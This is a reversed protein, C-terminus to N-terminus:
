KIVLVNYGTLRPLEIRLYGHEIKSKVKEGTSIDTVNASKRDTLIALNKEMVAIIQRVPRTKDFSCNVLHVVKHGSTTNNINIVVTDPLNTIIPTSGNTFWEMCKKFFRDYADFGKEYYLRFFESAIYVVRGKGYEHAVIAPMSTQKQLHDCYYRCFELFEAIYYDSEIALCEMSVPFVDGAAFDKIIAQTEAFRCYRSAYLLAPDEIKRIYSAGFVDSLAFNTKIRDHDYLTTEHTAFIGGGNNVYERIQGCQDQNLYIVNPLVVVKYQSLNKATIQSDLIFDYPLHNRMALSYAGRFTEKYKKMQGQHKQAYAKVSASSYIIGVCKESEADNFYEKNESVLEFVQKIGKTGDQNITPAFPMSWVMPRACNALVKATKILTEAAPSAVYSYPMLPYEVWTWVQLNIARGFTCQEDIHEFSEGYFRVAAETHIMDAITHAYEFNDEPSFVDNASWFQGRNFIVPMQFDKIRAAAVINKAIQRSEEVVWEYYKDVEPSPATEKHPIKGHFKDKCYACRCFPQIAFNDIYIADSNYLGAVEKVIELFYSSMFPSNPCMPYLIIESQGGNIPSGFTDAILDDISMPGQGYTIAWDPHDKYLDTVWKSNLYVVLAIDQKKCQDSFEVLLDKELFAAKPAIKSPYYAYGQHSFMGIRVANAGMDKITRIIESPNVDYNRIDFYTPEVAVGLTETIIKKKM